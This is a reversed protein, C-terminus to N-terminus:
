EQRCGLFDVSPRDEKGTIYAPTKGEQIHVLRGQLQQRVGFLAMDDAINILAEFVARIAVKSKRDVQSFQKIQRNAEQRLMEGATLSM